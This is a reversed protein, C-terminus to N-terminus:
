ELMMAKLLPKLRGRARHLRVEVTNRRLGLEAAVQDVSRQELYHLVIVERDGHPLARVAARVQEFKEGDLAADEASRDLPETHSQRVHRRWRGRVRWRRKWERCKNVAIRRLWTSLGAQGRFRPLARWAALFVEQVVDEAESDWGLLRYVLRAIEDHYRDLLEDFAASERRRLRGLLEPDHDDRAMPEKCAPPVAARAQATM